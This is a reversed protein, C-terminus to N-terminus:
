SRRLIVAHYAGRLTGRCEAQWAMRSLGLAAPLEHGRFGAAISVRADHLSVYNAGLAPGLAAFALQSVRRRLPECAVVLRARALKHGMQRLEDDSFQHFILNGIIVPYEAWHEFRKVDAQLWRCHAPWNAPEPWTDLGDVTLGVRHLRRALEGEGAGIELIREGPRVRQRLTRVIWAHNGMIANTLRLDRRNHVADPHDPPLSDLIEPQLDRRRM